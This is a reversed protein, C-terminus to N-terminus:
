SDVRLDLSLEDRSVPRDVLDALEDVGIRQGVERDAAHEIRDVQRAIAEAESAEVPAIGHRDRVVRPVSLQQQLALLEGNNASPRTTSRRALSCALARGGAGESGRGLARNPRGAARIAPNEARHSRSRSKLGSPSTFDPTNPRPAYRGASALPM